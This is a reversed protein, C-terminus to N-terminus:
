QFILDLNIPSFNHSLQIGEGKISGKPKLHENIVSPKYFWTEGISEFRVLFGSVIGCKGKSYSECDRQYNFLERQQHTFSKSSYVDSFSLAKGQKTKTDILVTKGKKHCIFDCQIRSKKVGFNTFVAGFEPLRMFAVQNTKCCVEFIQEFTKGAQKAKKGGIIRRNKKVM